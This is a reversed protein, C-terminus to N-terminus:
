CDASLAHIDAARLVRNRAEHPVDGGSVPIRRCVYLFYYYFFFFIWSMENGDIDM